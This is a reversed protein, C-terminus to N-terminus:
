MDAVRWPKPTKTMLPFAVFMGVIAGRRFDLSSGVQVKTLLPCPANADVSPTASTVESKFPKQSGEGLDEVPPNSRQSPTRLVTDWHNVLCWKSDMTSANGPTSSSDVVSSWQDAWSSDDSTHCNGDAYHARGKDYL